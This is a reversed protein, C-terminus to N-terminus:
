CIKEWFEIIANTEGTYEGCAGDLTLMRCRYIRPEKEEIRLVTVIDDIRIVINKQETILIAETDKRKYLGGVELM